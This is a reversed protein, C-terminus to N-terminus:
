SPRGVPCDAIRCAPCGASRLPPLRVSGMPEAAARLAGASEPRSDELNTKDITALCPQIVGSVLHEDILRLCLRVNWVVSINREKQVVKAAM